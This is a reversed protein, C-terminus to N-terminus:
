LISTPAIVSLVAFAHVELPRTQFAIAGQTMEPASKKAVNM